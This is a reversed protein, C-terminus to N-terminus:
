SWFAWCKSTGSSWSSSFHDKTFFFLVVQGRLFSGPPAHAVVPVVDSEGGPSGEDDAQDAPRTSETLGAVQEAVEMATGVADERLQDGRVLKRVVLRDDQLAVALLCGANAVPVATSEGVRDQRRRCVQKVGEQVLMALLASDDLDVGPDDEARRLDKLLGQGLRGDRGVDVRRENLAVVAGIPMAVGALDSLGVGERLVPVAVLFGRPQGHDAVVVAPRRPRAPLLRRVARVRRRGGHELAQSIPLPRRLIEQAVLDDRLLLAGLPGSRDLARPRTAAGAGRGDGTASLGTM